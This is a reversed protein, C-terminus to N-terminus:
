LGELVANWAGKVYQLGDLSIKLRRRCRAASLAVSGLTEDKRLLAEAHQVAAKLTGGEM